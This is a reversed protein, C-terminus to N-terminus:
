RSRQGPQHFLAPPQQLARLRALALEKFAIRNSQLGRSLSHDVPRTRESQDLRLVRPIRTRTRPASKETRSVVARSEQAHNSSTVRLTPPVRPSQTHSDHRRRSIAPSAQGGPAGRRSSRWNPSAVRDSHLAVDALDDAPCTILLSNVSIATGRIHAPTSMPLSCWWQTTILASPSRDQPGHDTVTRAVLGQGSDRGRSSILMPFGRPRAQNKAARSSSPVDLVAALSSKRGFPCPV